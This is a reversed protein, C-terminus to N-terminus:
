QGLTFRDEEVFNVCHIFYRAFIMHNIHPLKNSWNMQFQAGLMKVDVLEGGMQEVVPRLARPVM